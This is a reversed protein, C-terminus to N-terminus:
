TSLDNSVWNKQLLQWMKQEKFMSMLYDRTKELGFLLSAAIHIVYDVGQMANRISQINLIDGEIRQLPFSCLATKKDLSQVLAVVEIERKLLEKCVCTGLMGDAGTVLVKM